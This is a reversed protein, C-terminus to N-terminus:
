RVLQKATYDHCSLYSVLVTEGPFPVEDLTTYDVFNIGVGGSTHGHFYDSHVEDVIVEIDKM